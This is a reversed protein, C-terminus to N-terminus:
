AWESKKDFIKFFITLNVLFMQFPNMTQNRLFQQEFNICSSEPWSLIVVKVTAVLIEVNGPMGCLVFHNYEM